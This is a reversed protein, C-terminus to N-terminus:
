LGQNTRTKVMQNDLNIIGAGVGIVLATLFYDFVFRNMFTISLLGGWGIMAKGLVVLLCGMCIIAFRQSSILGNKHFLPAIASSFGVLALTFGLYSLLAMPFGNFSLILSSVGYLPIFVTRAFNLIQIM